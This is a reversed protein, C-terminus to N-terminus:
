GTENWPTAPTRLPIEELLRENATVDHTTQRIPRHTSHIPAPMTSVGFAILMSYWDTSPMCSRADFSSPM